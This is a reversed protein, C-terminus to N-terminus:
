NCASLSTKYPIKLSTTCAALAGGSSGSLAITDKIIKLSSLEASVGLHFPTLLGAPSFSIGIESISHTQILLQTFFINLSFLNRKKIKLLKM